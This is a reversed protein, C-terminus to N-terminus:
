PTPSTRQYGRWLRKDLTGGHIQVPSRDPNSVRMAAISLTENRARIFLQNRKDFQFRRDPAV